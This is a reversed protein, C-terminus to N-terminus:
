VLPASNKYPHDNPLNAELGWKWALYGEMRQRDSTSNTQNVYVIEALNGFFVSGYQDTGIYSSNFVTNATWYGDVTGNDTGNKWFNVRNIPVDGVMSFISYNSDVTTSANVDISTYSGWRGPGVSALIAVSNAAAKAATLVVQYSSNATKNFVAYVSMNRDVYDILPLSLGDSNFYVVNKNNLSGTYLPQSAAVAQTGNYANGSKDNWQSVNNGNLTISNSDSADFWLLTQIDAPTWLQQSPQTTKVFAFPTFM